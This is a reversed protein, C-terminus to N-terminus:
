EGGKAASAAKLREIAEAAEMAITEAVHEGYCVGDAETAGPFNKQDDKFWPYGLAKGLTQCVDNNVRSLGDRLQKERERLLDVERMLSVIRSGPDGSSGDFVDAPYHEDLVSMMGDWTQLRENEAEIFLVYAILDPIDQHANAIFRADDPEMELTTYCDDKGLQVCLYKTPQGHGPKITKWRGPTTALVRGDIAEIDPRM